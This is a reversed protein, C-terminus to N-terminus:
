RGSAGAEREPHRHKGLASIFDAAVTDAQARTRVLVGPDPEGNPLIADIGGHDLLM